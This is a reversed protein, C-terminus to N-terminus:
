HNVVRYFKPPAGPVLNELILFQGDDGTQLNTVTQWGPPFQGTAQIEYRAQPMGTFSIQFQGGAVVPHDITVPPNSETGTRALKFLVGGGNAGGALTTSYLAGDRGKLLGGWPSRGNPAAPLFEHLVEFDHGNKGIRFLYGSAPIPRGGESATGYLLGDPMEVLAGHQLHAGGFRGLARYESGDLKLQFITAGTVPSSSDTTGYLYGDGGYFLRSEPASGQSDNQFHRIIQYGSGHKGIRFITGRGATGGLATTGYLMGDPGEILTDRPDYGDTSAPIIVPSIFVHLVTFGTGDPNMKFVTGNGGEGVTATGGNRLVGYLVGGADQILAAAAHRGDTQTDLHRLITYDSGDTNMRYLVGGDGFLGGTGGSTTGGYLRGDQALLLGGPTKGDGAFAPFEHLPTLGSADEETRFVDGFGGAGGTIRSGFFRGQADQLLPSIAYGGSGAGPLSALETVVYRDPALPVVDGFTEGLRFEDFSATTTTTGSAFLLRDFQLTLNNLVAANYINNTPESHLPPNVYMFVRDGNPTGFMMKVVIFLTQQNTGIISSSASAGFPPASRATAFLGLTSGGTPVGAFLVQNAESVEGDYILLGAINNASTTVARFLYSLWLTTGEKGFRGGQLLDEFGATGIVRPSGAGNGDTVFRNGTTAVGNLVLSGAVVNNDGSWAGNWGTGGNLGSISDTPPYDAGDYAILAAHVSGPLLIAPVIIHLLRVLGSWPPLM